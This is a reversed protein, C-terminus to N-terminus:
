WLGVAGIAKVHKVAVMSPDATLGLNTDIVFKMNIEQTLKGFAVEQLLTTENFTGACGAPVPSTDHVSRFCWDDASNGGIRFVPGPHSGATTDYLNKLAQAFGTNM